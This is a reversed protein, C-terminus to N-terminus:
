YKATLHNSSQDTIKDGGATTLTYVVRVVPAPKKKPALRGGNM